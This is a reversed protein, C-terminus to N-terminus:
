VRVVRPNYPQAHLTQPVTMGCQAEVKWLIDEFTVRFYQYRM